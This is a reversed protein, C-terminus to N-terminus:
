ILDETTIGLTDEDPTEDKASSSMFYIFKEIDKKAANYGYDFAYRLANKVMVCHNYSGKFPVGILNKQKGAKLIEVRFMGEHRAIIFIYEEKGEVINM